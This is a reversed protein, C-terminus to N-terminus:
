LSITMRGKVSGDVACPVTSWLKEEQFVKRAEVQCMELNKEKRAMEALM